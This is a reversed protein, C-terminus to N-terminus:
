DEVPCIAFCRAPFGTANKVKPFTCFIISGVPPVQDLNNMVEIQFKDQKLVYDEGLFGIEPQRVPPDTDFPEHGISGVNRVEFLFKLAEIDWGPYRSCGTEDCNMSKHQEPWRKSWDSRMAVFAGEPIQGYKAEFEEIDAVTLAYDCDKEVKEHVDIVCLPYAFETVDIEDVLRAGPTFHGPADVHTGYQGPFTYELVKMPAVDFDFLVKYGMPQFGPWRPTDTGFEHTLDVWKYKSSKLEALHNWLPFNTM